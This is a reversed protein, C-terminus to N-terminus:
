VKQLWFATNEQIHKALGLPVPWPIPVITYQSSNWAEERRGDGNTRGLCTPFSSAEPNPPTSPHPTHLDIEESVLKLFKIFYYYYMLNGRNAVLLWARWIMESWRPMLGILMSSNNDGNQLHSLQPVLDWLLKTSSDLNSGASDSVLAQVRWWLGWLQHEM